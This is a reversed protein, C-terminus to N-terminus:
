LSLIGWQINIFTYQSMKPALQMQLYGSSWGSHCYLAFITGDPYKWSFLEDSLPISGEVPHRIMDVLVLNKWLEKKKSQYEKWTWSELGNNRGSINCADQTFMDFVWM